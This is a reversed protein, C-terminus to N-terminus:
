TPFRRYVGLTRDVFHDSQFREAVLAKGRAVSFARAEADTLAAALTLAADRPADYQVVWGASAREILPALAVRDTAVVPVGVGWAEIVAISLAEYASPVFVVAAESLAADRDDSSVWGLATVREADTGTGLGGVFVLQADPVATRLAGFTELCFALGKHRPSNRGLVVIIPGADLGHRQRFGSSASAPPVAATVNGAGPPILDVERGVLAHFYSQEEETLTIVAGTLRAMRPALRDFARMAAHPASRGYTRPRSPHFIPTWVTPVHRIRAMALSGFIVPSPLCGVAHVVVGRPRALAGPLQGLNGVETVEIGRARLGAALGGLYM